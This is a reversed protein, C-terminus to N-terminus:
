GLRKLGSDLWVDLQDPTGPRGYLYGQVSHCGHEFLWTAEAAREVGEAMTHLGLAAAMSLMAQVIAQKDRSCDINRVFSADIKVKHIPLHTFHSLSSYGRGFDDIVVSVGAQALRHIRSQVERDVHLAVTETIELEVAGPELGLRRIETIVHEAFGPAQLQSPSVNVALPPVSHGARRWQQM